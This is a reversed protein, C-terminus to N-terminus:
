DDGDGVWREPPSDTQGAHLKELLRASLVSSMTAINELAVLDSLNTQPNALMGALLRSAIRERRRDLDPVEGSMM